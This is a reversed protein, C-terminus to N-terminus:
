KTAAAKGRPLQCMVKTLYIFVAWARPYVPAPCPVSMVCWQVCATM